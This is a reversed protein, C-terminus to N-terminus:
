CVLGVQLLQKFVGVGLSVIQTLTITLAEPVDINSRVTVNGM